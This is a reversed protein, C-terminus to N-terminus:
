IPEDCAGFTAVDSGCFGDISDFGDGFCYNDYGDDVGVDVEVSQAGDATITEGDVVLSYGGEGETFCKTIWLESDGGSDRAHECIIYFEYEGPPLCLEESYQTFDDTVQSSAVWDGTCKNILRWITEHVHENIVSIKVSMNPYQCDICEGGLNNITKCHYPTIPVGHNWTKHYNHENGTTHFGIFQNNGDLIPSGVAGLNHGHIGWSVEDDTITGVYGNMESTDCKHWILISCKNLGWKYWDDCQGSNWLTGEPKDSQYGIIRYDWKKSEFRDGCHDVIVPMIGMADGISEEITYTPCSPCDSKIGDPRVTLVAINYAPENFPSEYVDANADLWKQYMDVHSVQWRGYEIPNTEGNRGPIVWQYGHLPGEYIGVKRPDESTGWFRFMCEAATLIKDRGIITGTCGGGNLDDIKVIKSTLPSDSSERSRTDEGALTLRRNPFESPHFESNDNLPLPYDDATPATIHNPLMYEAAYELGDSTIRLLKVLNSDTDNEGEEEHESPEDVIEGNPLNGSSFARKGVLKFEMKEDRFANMEDLTVRGETVYSSLKRSYRASSSCPGEREIGVHQCIALCENMYTNGDIACVPPGLAMDCGDDCDHSRVQQQLM